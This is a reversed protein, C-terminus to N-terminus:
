NLRNMCAHARENEPDRALVASLLSAAGRPDGLDVLLEAAECRAEMDAADAKVRDMAETLRRRTQQIERARAMAAAADETRGLQHLALSRNYLAADSSPDRRLAASLLQEAREANGDGLEIKALEILAETGASPDAVLKDLTARAIALEGLEVECVALRLAPLSENPSIALCERFREAAEGSEGRELLSSALQLRADYSDPDLELARRFDGVARDHEQVQAWVAGSVVWPRADAADLRKWRDLTGVAKELEFLQLYIASLTATAEKTPSTLLISEAEAFRGLDALTLGRELDAEAAEYGLRASEDLYQLAKTPDGLMRCARANLFLLEGDRRGSNLLPRLSFRALEPENNELHRRALALGDRLERAGHTRYALVAVSAVLAVLLLTIRFLRSV